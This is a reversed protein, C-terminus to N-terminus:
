PRAKIIKTYYLWLGLGILCKSILDLVNLTINKNVDDFNYAVGYFSWVLLYAGFLIYNEKSRKVYQTFIIGFTAAFAVFGLMDAVTHDLSGTEGAYGFYLMAYNFLVILAYWFLSITTKSNVSLVLSLVLLMMPTTIAWDVYRLQTIESWNPTTKIKDVFMSYFYGAVVSICTELNMVHRIAPVNTRLAEIFTITGTTLLLVFTLYFSFELNMKKRFTFLFHISPTVHIM